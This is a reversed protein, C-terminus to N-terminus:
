EARLAMIPDVLMARRAPLWAAGVAAVILATIAFAYTAADSGRVGFLQGESLTGAAFALPVGFMLGIVVPRLSEAMVAGILRTAEAGLAMRIGFEVTRRVVAYALTGYLGVCGLLLALTAFWTSITAVVQERVLGADVRDELTQLRAIVLGPARSRVERRLAAATANVNSAVRGAIFVGAVGSAARGQFYPLYVMEAPRGRLNNYKVDAAVGVVEFETRDDRIRGGIANMGPFYKDAVSRSILAVAPGREDDQDTFDRGEVAIGMTEFFRPGVFNFWVTTDAEPSPGGPVTINKGMSLGGLPIDMTFTVSRADITDPREAFERALQVVGRGDNRLDIPRVSALLVSSGNVFGADVGRLASLSRAFLGAEVLLLLSLAVQIAITTQSWRGVSLAGGAPVRAATVVGRRAALLAPVISFILGAAVSILLTFILTRVNPSLDLVIVLVGRSMIQVLLDSALYALGVGLVGGIVSLVLSETLLQRVLRSQRAGLALRLGVEQRRAASRALYLTALNACAILLVVSVMAMLIRLPVSFQDRLANLGQTGDILAFPWRVLERGPPTRAARLQDWTLALVASAQERSVGPALRGVVYLWRAESDDGLLPRSGFTQLQTSLPITIEVARGPETGFFDHETVGVITVTHGNAQLSEGIVTSAGGFRRQWYGYSIVAWNGGGPADDAATLTRGLVARVGLVSHYNGSVLQGIVFDTEGRYNVALPLPRFAALDALVDRQARLARFQYAAVPFQERGDIVYSGVVLEHPRQVPLSRLMVADLLSFIATNAGIGLALTLIAVAAFGPSAILVRVAYRVDQVADEIWPLGRRDRYIEKMQDVGGFARRAAARAEGDSMGHRAYEAALLDLHARVEADLDADLRGRRFLSMVRTFFIRSSSM